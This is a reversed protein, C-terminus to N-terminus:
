GLADQWDYTLDWVVSARGGGPQERFALPDAKDVEYGNARSVIHYKYSAAPGLEPVFGEWIGSSGRQAIARNRGQELQQFRRDRYRNRTQLGFPSIHALPTVM